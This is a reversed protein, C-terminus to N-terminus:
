FVHTYAIYAIFAHLIWLPKPFLLAQEHQVSPCWFILSIHLDIVIYKNENVVSDIQMALLPNEYAIEHSTDLVFVFYMLIQFGDLHCLLALDCKSATYISLISHNIIKFVTCMNFQICLLCYICAIDMCTHLDMYSCVPVRSHLCKWHVYTCVDLSYLYSKSYCALCKSLMCEYGILVKLDLCSTWHAHMLYFFISLSTTCSVCTFTRRVQGARQRPHRWLARHVAREQHRNPDRAALRLPESRIWVSNPKQVRDNTSM